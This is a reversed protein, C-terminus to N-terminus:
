SALTAVVEDPSPMAAITESVTGAAERFGPDDLLRQVARTIADATVEDPNIALVAGASVGGAANRFQDASQPLCLQPVGNALAGLFTGSGTHSVVVACHRLLTFQDVWREVTVNDPQPGLDAPDGDPGLTVLVRVPLERLAEVAQGLASSGLQLTGLTVYVLPAGGATVARPLATDEGTYSVPRLPLRRGIHGLPVSQVEPPCIDLYGAQFCGAYPALELGHKAWVGAVLDGAATIFPAPVAGGFAHTVVPVGLVAGVLPAGLEAQEHVMLDPRFAQAAPLLDDVMAPTLAEGFQHPYMFGAREQPPLQGGAARLRALVTQLEDGQLGAPVVPFGAAAVLGQAAGHTAWRVEHGADRFAKALPVMPLTHGYGFTSSFLVRM